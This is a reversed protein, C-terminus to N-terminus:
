SFFLSTFFSNLNFPSPSPSTQFSPLTLNFLLFFFYFTYCSGSRLLRQLILIITYSPPVSEIVPLIGLRRCFAVHELSGAVGFSPSSAPIGFTWFVSVGFLLALITISLLIFIPKLGSAVLCAQTKYSFALRYKL